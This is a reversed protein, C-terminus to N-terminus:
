EKQEQSLNDNEISKIFASKCTPKYKRKVILYRLLMRCHKLKTTLKALSDCSCEINMCYFYATSNNKIAYSLNQKGWCEYRHVLGGVSLVTGSLERFFSVSEKNNVADM